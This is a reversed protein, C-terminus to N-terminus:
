ESVRELARGGVAPECGGRDGGREDETGALHRLQPAGAAELKVGVLAAVVVLAYRRRAEGTRGGSRGQPGRAPACCAARGRKVTRKPRREQRSRQEVSTYSAFVPNGRELLSTFGGSM